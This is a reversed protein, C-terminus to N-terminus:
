LQSFEKHVINLYPQTVLHGVGPYMYLKKESKAHHYVSYVFHPLCTGDALGMCFEVPMDLFSVLNNVDFYSLTDLAADTHEPYRQLYYNVGNLVGSNNEVRQQLCCYSTIQTFCKKSLGSFASAVISLAGGQSGGYTVIRGADVEPLSAVVDMARIADMYINRMYHENKDLIGETMQYWNISGTEYEARDISIGSQGRVDMSFCCVGTSVIDPYIERKGRGGHFHVVCPLKEKAYSPVSFYAHIKTADHTNYVIEYTTISIDYPTELKTRSVELPLAKVEAVNKDWFEKLDPKGNQPIVKSKLETEKQEFYSM